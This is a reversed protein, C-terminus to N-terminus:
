QGISVGHKQLMERYESGIETAEGVLGWSYLTLDIPPLPTTSLLLAAVIWVSATAHHRSFSPDGFHTM